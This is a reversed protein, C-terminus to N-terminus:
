CVECFFSFRLIFSLVTVRYQRHYRQRSPPGAASLPEAGGRHMQLPM